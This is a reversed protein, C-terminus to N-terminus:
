NLNSMTEKVPELDRLKAKSESNSNESKMSVGSDINLLGFNCRHLIDM